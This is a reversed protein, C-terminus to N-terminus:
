ETSRRPDAIALDNRPQETLVENLESLVSEPHWHWRHWPNNIPFPFYHDLLPRPSRVRDAHSEKRHQRQAPSSSSIMNVIEPGLPLERREKRVTPVNPKPPRIGPSKRRSLASPTEGAPAERLATM